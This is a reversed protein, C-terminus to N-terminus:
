NAKILSAYQGAVQSWLHNQTAWARGALGRTLRLAPTSILQIIEQSLQETDQEPVIQGWDPQILEPFPPHPSTIVPLGSAAFELLSVPSAEGWSLLLAIDSAALYPAVDHQFGLLLINNQLGLDCIQRELEKKYSGEGLIWYRTNPIKELVKPMSQIVWQMGKREELAAVSILVPTNEEVKLAQRTQARWVPDPRFHQTDVGHGIIACPRGAWQQVEGATAQSVAILHAADRQFGWHAFERYRHPVLSPPFEFIVSFPIARILRALQLALGEGYGAFYVFVHEYNGKLLWYVYYLVSYQPQFYRVSPVRHITIGLSRVHDPIDLSGAWTLIDVCIGKQALAPALNWLNVEIGRQLRFQFPEIFAWRIKTM